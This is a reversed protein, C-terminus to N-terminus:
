PGQLIRAQGEAYRGKQIYLSAMATFVKATYLHDVGYNKEISAISNKFYSEANDYDGQATLLRAMDVKFPALEQDDELTFGRMITLAQEMTGVAEHYRAQRSYIESLIRLTYAVYPHSQSYAKEQLELGSLCTTEAETLRGQNKYLYALDLMCASIESDSAKTQRALNLAKVLFPQAKEYGGSAIYVRAMSRLSSCSYARGTPRALATGISLSFLLSVCFLTPFISHRNLGKTSPKKAAVM